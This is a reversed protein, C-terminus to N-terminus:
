QQKLWGNAKESETDEPDVGALESFIVYWDAISVIGNHIRGRSEQPIFGGSIWTNTRVGGEFDSYKGGKLPYNNASGPEYIPGGNDTTFAILTNDWMGKAKLADTLRRVTQDLYTTMAMLLHRNQTDIEKGGHEVTTQNILKVWYKPVQLPSHGM